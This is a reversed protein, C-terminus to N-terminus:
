ECKTRSRTNRLMTRSQGARGTRKSCHITAFSGANKLVSSRAPLTVNSITRSGEANNSHFFHRSTQPAYKSFFQLAGILRPSEKRRSTSVVVTVGADAVVCTLLLRRITHSLLPFSSERLAITFSNSTKSASAALVQQLPPPSSSISISDNLRELVLPTSLKLAISNRWISADFNSPGGRVLCASINESTSMKIDNCPAPNDLMSKMGNPDKTTSIM